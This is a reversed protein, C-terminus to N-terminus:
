SSLQMRQNGQHPGLFFELFIPLEYFYNFSVLVLKEAIVEDTPLTKKLQDCSVFLPTLGTLNFGLCTVLKCLAYPLEPQCNCDVIKNVFNQSFHINEFNLHAKLFSVKLHEDEDLTILASKPPLLYECSAPDLMSLMDAMGFSDFSNVSSIAILLLLERFM